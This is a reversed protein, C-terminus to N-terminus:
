VQPMFVYASGARLSFRAWISPRMILRLFCIAGSNVFDGAVGQDGTVPNRRTELSNGHSKAGTNVSGPNAHSITRHNM